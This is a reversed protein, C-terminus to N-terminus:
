PLTVSGILFADSGDALPVRTGSQADYMGILLNYTGAPISSVNSLTFVDRYVTDTQWHQTIGGINQPEHDDQAWLPAGTQPNIGGVLHVFTKLPTPTQRLPQWYAWVVLEGSPQPATFVRAGLLQAADTFTAPAQLAPIETPDVQWRRYQQIRLGNAHTDIVRQMNADLWREVVGYNQWDTFGQAALWLAAYDTSATELVQEIEAAPQNPQAPLAREDAAIREIQHYYYGFAADSAAQIVLEDAQVHDALHRNLARWDPTKQYGGFYHSLSWVSLSLWACLLVGALAQQARRQSQIASVIVYAGALIYAPLTALIYRPALVNLRLSVLALLIPPILGLTILLWGLARKQRYACVMGWVILAGIALAILGRPSAPLTEGFFLMIPFDILLTRWNFGTTTGGYGGGSLLQPQLYWPALLVGVSLMAGLWHAYRRWNRWATLAVFGSLAVLMFLELYYLYAAMSAAGVYLVWDIRRARTLARLALWLALVSTSSWLSYNRVDQAHWVLFPQFAWMLAALLAIPRQQTARQAFAYMGVVGLTGILAALARASFEQTGALKGWLQYSAYALLPQPDVTLQNQITESLPSLMWYQVTFAEDGRFPSRELAHIRLAFGVLVLAVLGWIHQRKHPMM